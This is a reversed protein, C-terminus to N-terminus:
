RSISGHGVAPNWVIAAHCDDIADMGLINSGVNDSKVGMAGTYGVGHPAGCVHCLTDFRATLGDHMLIATFGTTPSATAGTPNTTFQDGVKKIVVTVAAGTDALWRVNVSHSGSGNSAQGSVAGVHFPRHPDAGSPHPTLTM